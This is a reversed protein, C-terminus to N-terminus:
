ITYYDGSILIGDVLRGYKAVMMPEVGEDMMDCIVEGSNTGRFTRVRNNRTIGIVALTHMNSTVKSIAEAESEIQEFLTM